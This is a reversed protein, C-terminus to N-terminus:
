LANNLMASAIDRVQPNSDNHALHSLIERVRLNEQAHEGLSEIASLRLSHDEDSVATQILIELPPAVDESPEQVVATTEEQPTPQRKLVLQEEAKGGSSIWIQALRTERGTATYFLLFNKERLIRRLAESFSLDTFEVSVLEEGNQNLWRVQAGSLRSVEEMVQRLSAGMVRATLKGGQFTLQGPFTAAVPGLASATGVLVTGPTLGMLIGLLWRGLMRSARRAILMAYKM